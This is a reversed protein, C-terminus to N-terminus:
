QAAMEPTGRTRLLAGNKESTGQAVSHQTNSPPALLRWDRDVYFDDTAAAAADVSVSSAAAAAVPKEDSVM